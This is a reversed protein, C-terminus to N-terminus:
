EENEYNEKESQKYLTLAKEYNKLEVMVVVGDIQGFISRSTIWCQIENEILIEKLLYARYEYRYKILSVLKDKM